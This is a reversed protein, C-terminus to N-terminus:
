SRPRIRLPRPRQLSSRLKAPQPIFNQCLRHMSSPFNSMKNQFNVLFVCPRIFSAKFLDHIGSREFDKVSMNYCENVEIDNVIRKFTRWAYNEDLVLNSPRDSPESPHPKRPTKAPPTPDIHVPHITQIPEVDVPSEDLNVTLPVFKPVKPLSAKDAKVPRQKKPGRRSPLDDLDMVNSISKAKRKGVQISTKQIVPPATADEDGSTINKEKNERM